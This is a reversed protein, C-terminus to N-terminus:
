RNARNYQLEGPTLSLGVFILFDAGSQGPKLPIRPVLEEVASQRGDSWQQLLGTIRDREEFM